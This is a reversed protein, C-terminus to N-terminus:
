IKRRVALTDVTVSWLHQSVQWGKIAWDAKHICTAPSFTSPKTFITNKSKIMHLNSTFSLLTLRQFAKSSWLCLGWTQLNQIFDAQNQLNWAHFGCIKILDVTQSESNQLNLNKFGYIESDFDKFKMLIQLNLHFGCDDRLSSWPFMSCHFVVERPLYGDVVNNLFNYLQKNLYYRAKEM